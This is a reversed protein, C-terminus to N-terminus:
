SNAYQNLYYFTPADISSFRVSDGPQLLCLAPDHIDFVRLPTRGIINWGGVSNFSYIGTQLGALGVSGAAVHLAASAKRPTELFKPLPGLYPFGASFGVMFVHYVTSLHAYIIEETSVEHYKAVADLDPSFPYAYCVPIELERGIAPFQTTDFAAAHRHLWASVFSLPSQNYQQAVLLPDFFISLSNYAVTTEVFGTFITQQLLQMLGM